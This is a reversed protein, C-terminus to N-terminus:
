VKACDYCRRAKEHWMGCPIMRKCGPCRHDDRWPARMRGRKDWVGVRHRQLYAAAEEDSGLGSDTLFCRGRGDFVVGAHQNFLDMIIEEAEALRAQVKSSIM